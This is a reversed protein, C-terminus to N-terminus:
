RRRLSAIICLSSGGLTWAAPEPIISFKAITASVLREDTILYGDPDRVTTSFGILIRRNKASNWVEIDAPLSQSDKFLSDDGGVLLRTQYLQDPQGDIDIPLKALSSIADIRDFLGRAVEENSLEGEKRIHEYLLQTPGLRACDCVWGGTRYGYNDLISLSPRSALTLGGIGVTLDIRKSNGLDRPLAPDFEIFGTVRDGVMSEIRPAGFTPLQPPPQGVASMPLPRTRQISEVTAEFDIRVVEARLTGPTLLLLCSSAALVCLPKMARNWAPSPANTIGVMCPGSLDRLTVGLYGEREKETISDPQDHDIM